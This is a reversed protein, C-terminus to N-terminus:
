KVIIRSIMALILFILEEFFLVLFFNEDILIRNKHNIERKGIGDKNKSLWELTKKKLVMVYIM